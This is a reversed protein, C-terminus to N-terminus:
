PIKKTIGSWYAINLVGLIKENDFTMITYM